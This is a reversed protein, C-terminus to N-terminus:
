SRQQYEGTMISPYRVLTVGTKPSPGMSESMFAIVKTLFNWSSFRSITGPAFLRLVELFDARCFVRPFAVVRFAFRFRERGDERSSVVLRYVVLPSHLRRSDFGCQHIQDRSPGGATWM